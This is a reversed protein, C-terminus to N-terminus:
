STLVAAWHRDGPERRSARLFGVYQGNGFISETGAAQISGLKQTALDSRSNCFFGGGFTVQVQIGPYLATLAIRLSNGGAILDDFHVHEGPVTDLARDARILGAILSDTSHMSDSAARCPYLWRKALMAFAVDPLRRKIRLVRYQAHSRLWEAVVFPQVVDKYAFGAPATVQDLFESLANFRKRDYEKLTFKVGMNDVPERLQVYRDVNLIEGSTTWSPTKLGLATQVATYTKSSLSRPLSIVFLSQM